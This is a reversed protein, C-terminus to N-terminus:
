ASMTRAADIVRQATLGLEEYIKEYPASAGFRELGIVVGDGVSGSTGRCRIRRRSRWARCARAAAGVRQYEASQRAFLEM